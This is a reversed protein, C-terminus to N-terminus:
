NLRVPKHKNIVSHLYPKEQQGFYVVVDRHSEFYLFKRSESDRLVCGSTNALDVKESLSQGPTKDNPYLYSFTAPTVSM